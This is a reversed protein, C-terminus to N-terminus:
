KDYIEIYPPLDKKTVKIKNASTVSVNSVFEVRRDERPVFLDKDFIYVYGCSDDTLQEVADKRAKLKLVIEGTENDVTGASSAYGKPCNHKNILAMLIAYDARNSTFVAPEGDPEQIGNRYNFGQRPELHDLDPNESGHFVWKGESELELLKERGSKLEEISETM